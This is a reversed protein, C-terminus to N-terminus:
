LDSNFNLEFDDITGWGKAKGKVSVGILLPEDAILDGESLEFALKPNQWQQWGSVSVNGGPIFIDGGTIVFLQIEADDGMDGGQIYCSLTYIGPSLKEKDISQTVEFDLAETSYFHFAKDGSKADSEKTQIDTPNDKSVYKVEWMSVDADEFSPNKIFNVAEVNVFGEFEGFGEAEGKVPYAGPVNVNIEDLLTEDWSTIKLFSNESENTVVEIEDPLVVEEGIGCEVEVPKAFFVKLPATAGYKVYKFVNLSPLPHGDFDFMAQNDWSSGGYYKGADNADYSGAYSSAWGSGYKEWIAQNSTFDSGVPIWAGEWYFVGLSGAESAVNMIDRIIKAQGEVSVPYDGIRGEEGSISNDTGDGDKDTYPFATEMICTDVGYQTKIDNLVNYLNEFSGHWYPYYSVGFIDYDAGAEKLLAPKKMTDDYNDIMTFHVAAKIDLGREKSVERVGECGSALARYLNEPSRIGAVGPNTENGVQVIGVDAGADIITGLSEVTFTKIAEIKGDTTLDRWAKPIMQKNPDAWFDSYHFDVCTKIGYKAARRGIEAATDVNCNGGGYGNGDADYPDNWVRVRVYNIGADALIKLLDEENGEEDYYKVGSAEESLLSSIDMGKIFDDSIGDIKTVLIDADVNETPLEPVYVDSAAEINGPVEDPPNGIVSTPGDSSENKGCCALVTMATFGAIFVAIGKKVDYKRM